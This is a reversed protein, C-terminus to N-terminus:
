AEGEYQSLLNQVFAQMEARTTDPALIEVAGAFGAVWGFFQPSLSVTVTFHFHQGDAECMTMIDMGFRDLMADMMRNECRLTIKEDTGGYMGFTKQLYAPLNFAEFAARGERKESQMTVKKMRDIRYHRIGFPEQYSQYAILYYNNGEWTLNWPSVVHPNKGHDVRHKQVDYHFYDFQVKRKQDIAQYLADVNYLASDNQSKVRGALVIQAQLQKAQPVSTLAKIKKTLARTKRAPIFRSNQVADILLQLEPLEFDRSAMYYGGGRGRQLEIDYGADVLADIDAYISKRECSIGRKALAAELEGTTFRHSEDSYVRLFELLALLKQKQNAQPAM